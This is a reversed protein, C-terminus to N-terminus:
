AEKSQVQKQRLEHQYTALRLLNRQLMAITLKGMSPVYLSAQEKIDAEFNKASSFNVAIVGDKLQNTAIKYKPSPM